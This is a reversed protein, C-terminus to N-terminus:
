RREFVAQVCASAHAREATARDTPAGSPQAPPPPLPLPQGTKAAAITADVLARGRHSREAAQEPTRVTRQAVDREWTPISHRRRM